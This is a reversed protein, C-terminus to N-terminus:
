SWNKLIASFCPESLINNPESEGHLLAFFSTSCRFDRGKDLFSVSAIKYPFALFIKFIIFLLYDADLREYKEKIIDDKKSQYQNAHTKCARPYHILFDAFKAPYVTSSLSISSSATFFYSDFSLALFLPVCSKALSDLSSFDLSSKLTYKASLLSIKSHRRRM